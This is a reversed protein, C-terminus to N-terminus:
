RIIEGRYDRHRKGQRVEDYWTGARQVGSAATEGSHYLYAEIAERSPADVRVAIEKLARIAIEKEGGGLFNNHGGFSLVGDLRKAIDKPLEEGPEIDFGKVLCTAGTRRIWPSVDFLSGPLVCLASDFAKHEALELTRDSPWIALVPGGRRRHSGDSLPSLFEWRRASQGLMPANGVMKKANMVILGTGGYNQEAERLWAFAHALGDDRDIENNDLGPVWFADYRQAPPKM